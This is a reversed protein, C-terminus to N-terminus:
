FNAYDELLSKEPLNDGPVERQQHLRPLEARGQGGAVGHNHLQRLLGGEGTDHM